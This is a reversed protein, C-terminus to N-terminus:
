ECGGTEQERQTKGRNTDRLAGLRLELSAFCEEAQSRGEVTASVVRTEVVRKGKAACNAGVEFGDDRLRGLRQASAVCDTLEPLVM